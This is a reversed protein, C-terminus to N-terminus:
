GPAVHNDYEHLMAEIQQSETAGPEISGGDVVGKLLYYETESRIAGRKLIQLYKKSYRRRVESLAFTGAAVFKANADAVQEPRWDATMEVIDNIAMQLGKRANAPSSKEINELFQSPSGPPTTPYKPVYWEFHRDLFVKLLEYDDDSMTQKSM